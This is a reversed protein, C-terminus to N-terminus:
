GLNAKIIKSMTLYSNMTPHVWDWGVIIDKNDYAQAFDIIPRKKESSLALLNTNLRSLHRERWMNTDYWVCTCLVPQIWYESLREWWKKIDNYTQTDDTTNVWFYFMFSKVWPHREKYKGVDEIKKFRNEHSTTTSWTIGDMNKFYSHSELWQFWNMISNWLWWMEEQKTAVINPWKLYEWKYQNEEVAKGEIWIAPSFDTKEADNTAISVWATNIKVWEWVFAKNSIINWAQNTLSYTQTTKDYKIFCSYWWWTTKRVSNKIKTNTCGSYDILYVKDDEIWVNNLVQNIKLPNTRNTLKLIWNQSEYLPKGNQECAIRIRKLAEEETKDILDSINNILKDKTTSLLMYMRSDRYKDLIDNYKNDFDEEVGKFYRLAEIKNLKASEMLRGESVWRKWNNFRLDRNELQSIYNQIVNKWADHIKEKDMKLFNRNNKLEEKIDQRITDNSKNEYIEGM